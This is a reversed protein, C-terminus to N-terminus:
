AGGGELRQHFVLREYERRYGGWGEFVWTEPIGWCTVVGNAPVYKIKRCRKCKHGRETPDHCVFPEEFDHPKEDICSEEFPMGFFRKM